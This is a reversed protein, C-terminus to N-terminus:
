SKKGLFAFDIGWTAVARDLGGVGDIGISVRGPITADGDHLLIGCVTDTNFGCWRLFYLNFFDNAARMASIAAARRWLSPDVSIRLHETTAFSVDYAGTGDPQWIGRRVKPHVYGDRLSKLESISQVQATGRDFLVDPAVKSLFFEFKSLFPLRDIDSFFANNLKLVNICCNAACEFLLLSNVVSGRTLTHEYGHEDSEPDIDHALYLLHVADYLLNEFNKLHFVPEPRHTDHM